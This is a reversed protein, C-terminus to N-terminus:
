ESFPPRLGARRYSTYIMWKAADGRADAFSRAPRGAPGCIVPVDEGGLRATIMHPTHGYQTDLNPRLPSIRLAMGDSPSRFVLFKFRRQGRIPPTMEFTWGGFAGHWVPTWCEVNDPDLRSIEEVDAAVPGVNATAMREEPLKSLAEGEEASVAPVQSLRGGPQVVIDTATRRGSEQARLTQVITAWDDGAAMRERPLTSLTNPPPALEVAPPAHDEVPAPATHVVEGTAPDPVPQLVMPEPHTLSASSPM